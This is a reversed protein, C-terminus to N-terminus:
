TSLCRRKAYLESIGPINSHKGCICFFEFLYQFLALFKDKGKSNAMFVSFFISFDSTKMILKRTIEGTMQAKNRLENLSISHKFVM